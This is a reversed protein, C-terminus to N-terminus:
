LCNVGPCELLKNWISQCRSARGAASDKFSIQLRAPSILSTNEPLINFHSLPQFLDMIEGDKYLIQCDTHIGGSYRETDSQIKFMVDYVTDSESMTMYYHRRNGTIFIHVQDVYYFEIYLEHQVNHPEENLSEVPINLPHVTM